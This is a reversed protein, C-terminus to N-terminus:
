TRALRSMLVTSNRASNKRAALSWVIRTTDQGQITCSRCINYDKDFSHTTQSTAGLSLLFGQPSLIAGVTLLWFHSRFYNSTFFFCSGAKGTHMSKTCLTGQCVRLICMVQPLTAHAWSRLFPGRSVAGHRWPSWHKPRPWSRRESMKAMIMITRKENKKM